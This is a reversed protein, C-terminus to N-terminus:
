AAVPKQHTRPTMETMAVPVYRWVQIALIVAAALLLAGVAVHTVTSVVMAPELHAADHGWMIRTAFAAFGLCLQAVMLGLMAIAPRRVENVESYQALARVATWTLIAAVVGAHLVHPWWSMGRHRYMGGLVLQVYLAAISLLTLTVLSPRRMDLQLRPLEQISTRASFVALLAAICFFTQALVAHATSIAPPLLALVTIGGLMGQLIVTALALLALRRMWLRREVALTWITIAITLAGVFEALMRHGHEFQVGGVMRPMKYLSGFSTPWDPVSLGADKSTVLAGAVILLLTIAATFVAFWHYARHYPMELSKM